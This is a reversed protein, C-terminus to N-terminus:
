FAVALTMDDHEDYLFGVALLGVAIVFLVVDM